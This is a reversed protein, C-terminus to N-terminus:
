RRRVQDGCETCILNGPPLQSVALDAECRTLQQCSLCRYVAWRPARVMTYNTHVYLTLPAPLGDVEALRLNPHGDPTIIRVATVPYGTTFLFADGDHMHRAPLSWRWSNDHLTAVTSYRAPLEALDTTIPHFGIMIRTM